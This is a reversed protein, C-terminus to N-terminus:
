ATPLSGPYSTDWSGHKYYSIIRYQLRYMSYMVFIINLKIYSPSFHSHCALVPLANIAAFLISLALQPINLVGTDVLLFSTLPSVPTNFWPLEHNMHWLLLTNCLFYSLVSSGLWPVAEPFCLELSAMSSSSDILARFAAQWIFGFALNNSSPYCSFYM